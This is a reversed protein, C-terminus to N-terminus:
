IRPTFEATAPLYQIEAGPLSGFEAPACLVREKEYWGSSVLLHM